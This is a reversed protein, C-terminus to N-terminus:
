WHNHMVVAIALLCDMFQSPILFAAPVIGLLSASLAKEATWLKTHDHGQGAMRKASLSFQKMNQVMIGGQPPAVCFTNQKTMEKQLYVPQQLTFIQHFHSSGALTSCKLFHGKTLTQL